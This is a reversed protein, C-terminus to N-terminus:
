KVLSPAFYESGSVLHVQNVALLDEMTVIKEAYEGKRDLQWSAIPALFGKAFCVETAKQLLVVIAASMKKEGSALLRLTENAMRKFRGADVVVYGDELRAQIKVGFLTTLSYFVDDNTINSGADKRQGATKIIKILMTRYVQKLKEICNRDRVVLDGEGTCLKKIEATTPLTVLARSQSARMKGKRMWTGKHMRSRLSM